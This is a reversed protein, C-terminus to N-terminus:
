KPYQKSKNYVMSKNENKNRVGILENLNARLQERKEPNMELKVNFVM